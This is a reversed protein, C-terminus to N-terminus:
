KIERLILSMTEATGDEYITVVPDLQLKFLTKLDPILEYVDRMIKGIVDIELNHQELNSHILSNKRLLITLDDRMEDCFKILDKFMLESGIVTIDINSQDKLSYVHDCTIKAISELITSRIAHTYGSYGIEDELVISFTGDGNDVSTVYIFNLINKPHIEKFIGLKLDDYMRRTQKNYKFTYLVLRDNILKLYSQEQKQYEEPNYYCVHTCDRELLEPYKSVHTVIFRYFFNYNEKLIEKCKNILEESIYM